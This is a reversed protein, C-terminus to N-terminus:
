FLPFSSFKYKRLSALSFARFSLSILFPPHSFFTLHTSFRTVDHRSPSSGSLSRLLHSCFRLRPFFSCFITLWPGPPPSPAILSPLVFSLVRLFPLHDSFFYGESFFFFLILFPSSIATLSTPPRPLPPFFLVLFSFSIPALARRCFVLSSVVLVV